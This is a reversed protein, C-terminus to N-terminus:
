SPWESRQNGGQLDHANFREHFEAILTAAERQRAIRHPRSAWSVLIPISIPVLFISAILLCPAAWGLLKLIRKNEPRM